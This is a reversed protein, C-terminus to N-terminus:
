KVQVVRFSLDFSSGDPNFASRNAVRCSSADSYLSGGRIVRGTGYSPGQPNSSPSSGYYLSGRWDSCWEWANGSMDYIGLENAQKTCVEHTKKGSNSGYWAVDGITNSGSYSTSSASVGGRAAYEWEAETPLRGGAWKCYANAGYWTVRIVPATQESAYSSGSFYFASGNHSIACDSDEMDIYEVSNYDSDNYSGNSNVGVENLFKIFQAHTVEHKGIYFDDVSVSHVPREDSSGDTSGMQFTGGQVFVMYVNVSEKTTFEKEEGYTTGLENIAYARVFYKTNETLDTLTSVFEGVETAGTTLGTNVELTANASTHWVLGKATITKDGDSILNGGCIATTNTIESVESTTIEPKRDNTTSFEKEVGYKTGLENTAYARVFYKTDATLDTLSSVFKGVKNAETTKGTNVELTANSSTHWVLGKAKIIKGGDSSLDGGCIATTNTIESVESTSIELKLYNENEDKSCGFIILQLLLVLILSKLKM